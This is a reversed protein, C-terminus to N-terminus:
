SQHLRIKLHENISLGKKHGLFYKSLVFDYNNVWTELVDFLKVAKVELDIIWILSQKNYSTHDLNM